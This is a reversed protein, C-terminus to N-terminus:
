CALRPQYRLMAADLCQADNATDRQMMMVDCPCRHPATLKKACGVSLTGSGPRRMRQMGRRIRVLGGRSVFGLAASPPFAAARCRGRVHSDFPLPASGAEARHRTVKAFNQQPVSPGQPAVVRNPRAWPQGCRRFGNPLHSGLGQPQLTPWEPIRHTPKDRLEAKNNGPPM